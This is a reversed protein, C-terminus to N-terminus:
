IAHLKEEIMAVVAKFIEDNNRIYLTLGEEINNIIEGKDLEESSMFLAHRMDDDIEEQLETEIYERLEEIVYEEFLDALNEEIDKDLVEKLEENNYERLEKAVYILISDHINNM